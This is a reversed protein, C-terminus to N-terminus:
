GPVAGLAAVLPPLLATSFSRSTPSPELRLLRGRCRGRRIWQSLGRLAAGAVPLPFASGAGPQPHDHSHSVPALPGGRASPAARSRGPGKRTHTTPAAPLPRSSSRPTAHTTCGMAQVSTGQKEAHSNCAIAQVCTGRDAVYGIEQM